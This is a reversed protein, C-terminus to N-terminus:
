EELSNPDFSAARAILGLDRATKEAQEHIKILRTGLPRNRFDGGDPQKGQQQDRHMEAVRAMRFAGDVAEALLEAVAQAQECAANAVEYPEGELQNPNTYVFTKEKVKM